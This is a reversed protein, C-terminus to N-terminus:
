RGMELRMGSMGGKTSLTGANLHVGSQALSKSLPGKHVFNVKSQPLNSRGTVNHKVIYFGICLSLIMLVLFHHSEFWIRFYLRRIKKKENKPCQMFDIYAMIQVLFDPKFTFLITFTGTSHIIHFRCIDISFFISFLFKKGNSFSFANPKQWSVVFVFHIFYYSKWAVM